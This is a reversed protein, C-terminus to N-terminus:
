WKLGLETAKEKCYEVLFAHYDAEETKKFYEKLKKKYANKAAVKTGVYIIQVPVGNYSIQWGDDLYKFSGDMSVPRHLHMPLGMIEEVSTYKTKKKGIYYDM